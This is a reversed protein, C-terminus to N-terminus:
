DAMKTRNIAPHGNVARLGWANLVIWFVFTCLVAAINARGHLPGIRFLVAAVLWLAVAVILGIMNRLSWAPKFRQRKRRLDRVAWYITIATFLLFVPVFWGLWINIHLTDGRFRMKQGHAIVGSVLMATLAGTWLIALLHFPMRAGRWGYWMMIAVFLFIVIVFWFNGSTGTGSFGANSWRYNPQILCRTLVLPPMVLTTFVLWIMVVLQLVDKRETTMRIRGHTKSHRRSFLYAAGLMSDVKIKTVLVGDAAFTTQILRIGHYEHARARTFHL